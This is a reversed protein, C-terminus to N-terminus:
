WFLLPTGKDITLKKTAALKKLLEIKQDTKLQHFLPRLMEHDNKTWRGAEIAASVVKVAKENIMPNECCGKGATGVVTIAAPAKESLAVGGILLGGALVAAGMVYGLKSRKSM